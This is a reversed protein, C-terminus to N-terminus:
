DLIEIEYAIQKQTKGRLVVSSLETVKLKNKEFFSNGIRQYTEGGIIIKGPPSISQLRFATNVGDGIATFPKLDKAGMRGVTVECTNVGIGVEFPYKLAKQNSLEKIRKQISIACLLAKEIHDDTFIPVGFIAMVADGIFKDIIGQNERVANDVIDFYDNLMQVIEEPNLKESIPTFGRIDSFLITVEQLKGNMPYKEPNIIIDDVIKPDVMGRFLQNISKRRREEYLLQFTIISFDSLIIATIPTTVPIIIKNIALLISLFSFFLIIILSFLIGFKYNMRPLTFGMIMGVFLIIIFNQYPKTQYLFQKKLISDIINAHIAPAPYAKEIPVPKIDTSAHATVGVIVISGKLREIDLLNTKGNEIYEKYGTLINSLSIGRKIFSEGEIFNILMQGKKDIPINIYNSLKICQGFKVEIDKPNINLTNLIFVLDLNPSLKENFACVLPQRRLVGDIDPEINIFGTAKASNLLKTDPLAVDLAEYPEGYNDPTYNIISQTFITPFEKVKIDTPLSHKFYFYNALYVEKHASFDASLRSDMERKTDFIIDFIINKVEFFHLAETLLVFIERTEFPYTLSGDNKESPIVQFRLLDDDTIGILIIKPDIQTKKFESSLRIRLDYTVYEFQTLLDSKLLFIFISLAVAFVFCMLKPNQFTIKTKQIQNMITSNTSVCLM